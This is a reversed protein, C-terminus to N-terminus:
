APDEPTEPTPAPLAPRTGLDIAELLMKRSSKHFFRDLKLVMAQLQAEMARFFHEREQTWAMTKEGNRDEVWTERGNEDRYQERTGIKSHALLRWSFAIGLESARRHEGSFWRKRGKVRYEFSGSLAVTYGIVKTVIEKELLERERTDIMELIRKKVEKFDHGTQKAEYSRGTLQEAIEDAMTAVFEGKVPHFHVPVEFPKGLFKFMWTEIKM